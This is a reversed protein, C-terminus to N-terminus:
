GHIFGNHLIRIQVERLRGLRRRSTNPFVTSIDIMLIATQMKQATKECVRRILWLLVDTTNRGARSGHQVPYWWGNIEGQISLHMTIAKGVLKVITPLLSICCYSKLGTRDWRGPKPIVVVTAFKLEPPLGTRVLHNILECLGLPDLLFWLKLEQWGIGDLGSASSNSTKRLLRRLLKPCVTFKTDNTRVHTEPVSTSTDTTNSPSLENDTKTSFSISGIAEM